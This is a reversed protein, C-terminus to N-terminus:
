VGAVLFRRTSASLGESFRRQETVASASLIIILSAARERNGKNQKANCQTKALLILM